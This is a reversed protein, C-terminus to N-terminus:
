SHGSSRRPQSHCRKFRWGYSAGRTRGVPLTQTICRAQLASPRQGGATEVGRQPPFDLQPVSGGALFGEGQGIRDTEHGTEGERRRAARQGRGAQVADMSLDMILPFLDALPRHGALERGAHILARMQPSGQMGTTKNPDDVQPGLVGDLSAVVTTASNSFQETNEVFMVTNQNAQGAGAFEITLHGASIRDGPVFPMPKEVRAGNLLTGNKSGIVLAESHPLFAMCTWEGELNQLTRIAKGTEANFLQISKKGSLCAGIQQDPTVCVSKCEAPAATTWMLTLENEDGVQWCEIQNKSTRFTLWEGSASVSLDRVGPQWNKKTMNTSAANGPAWVRINGDSSCSVVQQTEACVEVKIM